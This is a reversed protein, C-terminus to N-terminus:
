LMKLSLAIFFIATAGQPSLLAALKYDLGITSLTIIGITALLSFGITSIIKAM